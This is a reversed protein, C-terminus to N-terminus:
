LLRIKRNRSSLIWYSNSALGLFSNLIPTFPIFVLVLGGPGETARIKSFGDGVSKYIKPDIQKRCKVIDLPVVATHTLGCGLAGGVMCKLYYTLDHQDGGM